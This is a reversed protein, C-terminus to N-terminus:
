PTKGQPSKAAIGHGMRRRLTPVFEDDVLSLGQDVLLKRRLSQLSQPSNKLGELELVVSERSLRLSDNDWAKLAESFLALDAVAVAKVLKARTAPRGEVIAVGDKLSIGPVMNSIPELKLVARRENIAALLSKKSLSEIQLHRILDTKAREDDGKAKTADKKTENAIRQLAM